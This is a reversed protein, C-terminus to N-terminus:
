CLLEYLCQSVHASASASVFTFFNQDKENGKRKNSNTHTLLHHTDFELILLHMLLLM